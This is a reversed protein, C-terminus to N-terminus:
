ETSCGIEAHLSSEMERICAVRIHAKINNILTASLEVMHKTVLQYEKLCSYITTFYNWTNELYM